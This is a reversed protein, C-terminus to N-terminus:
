IPMFVAFFFQSKELILLIRCSQFSSMISILPNNYGDLVSAKVIMSTNRWKQIIPVANHLRLKQNTVGHGHPIWIFSRKYDHLHASGRYREHEASDKQPCSEHTKQMEEKMPYDLTTARKTLNQGEGLGVLKLTEAVIADASKQPNAPAAQRCARGASRRPYPCRREM